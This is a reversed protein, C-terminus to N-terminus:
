SCLGHGANQRKGAHESSLYCLQDTPILTPAENSSALAAWGAIVDHVHLAPTIDGVFVPRNGYM